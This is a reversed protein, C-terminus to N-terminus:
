LNELKVSRFLYTAVESTIYVEGDVSDLSLDNLESSELSDPFVYPFDHSFGFRSDNRVLFVRWPHRRRRWHLQGLWGEYGRERNMMM